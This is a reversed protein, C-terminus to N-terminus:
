LGLFALLEESSIDKWLNPIQSSGEVNTHHYIENLIDDTIFLKLTDAVSSINESYATLGPTGIVINHKRRCSVLPLLKNGIEGNKADYGGERESDTDSYDSATVNDGYSDTEHTSVHDYEAQDSHEISVYGSDSMNSRYTESDWKDSIHSPKLEELLMKEIVDQRAKYPDMINVSM